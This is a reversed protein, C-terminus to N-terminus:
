QAAGPGSTAHFTPALRHRVDAALPSWTSPVEPLRDGANHRSTPTPPREGTLVFWGVDALWWLVAFFLEALLDGYREIAGRDYEIRTRQLRTM